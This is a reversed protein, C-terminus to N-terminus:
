IGMQNIIASIPQSGARVDSLAQQTFYTYEKQIQPSNWWTAATPCGQDPGVPQAAPANTPANQPQSPAAPAPTPQAPASTPLLNVPAAGFSSARTPIIGAKQGGFVVGFALALFVVVAIVAILIIQILGGIFRGPTIPERVNGSRQSMEEQELVA